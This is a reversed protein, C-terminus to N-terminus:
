AGGALTELDRIISFLARGDVLELDPLICDDRFAVAKAFLDQVSSVPCVTLAARIPWVRKVQAFQVRAGARDVKCQTFALGRRTYYDCASKLWEPLASGKARSLLPGMHGITIGARNFANLAAETDVKSIARPSPKITRIVHADNDDHTVSYNLGSPVPGALAEAKKHAKDLAAEAANLEDYAAGLAAQLKAPCLAGSDAFYAQGERAEIEAKAHADPMTEPEVTWVTGIRQGQSNITFTLEQVNLAPLDIKLANVSAIYDLTVPSNDPRSPIPNSTTKTM